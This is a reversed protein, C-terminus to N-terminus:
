RVALAKGVVLPMEVSPCLSRSLHKTNLPVRAVLARTALCLGELCWVDTVITTVALTRRVILHGRIILPWQRDSNAIPSLSGNNGLNDYDSIPRKTPGTLNPM